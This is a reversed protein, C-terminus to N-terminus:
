SSNRVRFFTRRRYPARISKPRCTPGAAPCIFLQFHVPFPSGGFSITYCTLRSENRGCYRGGGRSSFSVLMYQRLVREVRRQRDEFGAMSDPWYVRVGKSREDVGVWRGEKVRGGLKNEGEVRVWVKEGWERLGRLDPKKGFAAEYPTMGDVAKTSTRNMLWVVHRAAEGWLFKPLGSAHILARVREVITWNRREAVGLNQPTDHANLKQVTGKSKLYLTFEKGM